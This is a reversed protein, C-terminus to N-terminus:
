SSGAAFRNTADILVTVMDPSSNGHGAREILHLEADLWRQTLKWPIDPPGSVDVVGHALVGGIGSLRHAHRLLFCGYGASPCRM